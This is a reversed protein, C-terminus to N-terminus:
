HPNTAPPTKLSVPQMATDSPGSYELKLVPEGKAPRYFIRFPHLGKRLPVTASADTAGNHFDDAIVHSDHIWMQAGSDSTLRFTYIGDAPVEIFGSFRVGSAGKLVSLELGPARDTRIPTLADFDPLWPWTGEYVAFDVGDKIGDPAPVSPLQAEDYPRPAEADPRRVTLLMDTMRKVMDAHEPNDALDHDQHPDKAINYLRIPDAASKIQTRVGVWDGIRLFQQQGRDSVRKRAFVDKSAPDIQGKYTYESYIYSRNRQTGEGTLSPVLSVGDTQAPPPLGALDAFTPMWDWFGSVVDTKSGPPIHGPWWAIAPERIGGEWIDRKFGDFPGWSDFNRPDSGNASTPGNDSTFVVITNDAIDLDRLLHLIDGIGDDLRRAMTAYRKMTDTWPKGGSSANAYDPHLWTDRTDPTPELPWQVGGKLGGGEPYPGGPVHLPTHVATYALFLFFPRGPDTKEHDVIFKKARATFLDTSYIDLYKDTVDEWGDRLRKKGSHYYTHGSAHELYGFFDDFGRRLPHGPTDADKGALGWKGITMTRYDGQKLVTGLTHVAPIAKDFQNNRIPCHGQNQGTILSGRAPACVPAGTYHQTLLRGQAAMVDLQPTSFRPQDPGRSNQHFVGVDGYGMDDALILIINPQPPAALALGSAALAILACLLSAIKM